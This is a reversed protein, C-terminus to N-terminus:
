ADPNSRVWFIYDGELPAAGAQTLLTSVQALHHSSHNAVQLVADGARNSRAVGETSRYDIVRTLDFQPDRLRAVYDDTLRECDARLSDDDSRRDVFYLTARSEGEIRSEWLTMAVLVHLMTDRISGYSGRADASLRGPEVTAGVELLHDFYWRNRQFLRALLEREPSSV